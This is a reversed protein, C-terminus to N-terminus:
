KRKEWIKIKYIFNYISYLGNVILGHTGDLFGFRLIYLKFFMYIPSIIAHLFSVDKRTNLDKASDLDTYENM